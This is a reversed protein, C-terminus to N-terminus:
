RYWVVVLSMVLCQTANALNVAILKNLKRNSREYLSAGMVANAGTWVLWTLLSHQSSSGSEHIAWITPLYTLLRATSFLTFSWDLLALYRTRAATCLPEIANVSLHNM